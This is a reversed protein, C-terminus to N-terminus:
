ISYLDKKILFFNNLVFEFWFWFKMELEFSSFALNGEIEDDCNLEDDSCINLINVLMETVILYLLIARIKLVIFENLSCLDLYNILYEELIIHIDLYVYKNFM